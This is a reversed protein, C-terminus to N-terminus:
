LITLKSEDIPPNMVKIKELVSPNSAILPAVESPSSPHIFTGWKKIFRELEIADNKRRMEDKPQNEAKWWGPMRSSVCSFHYVIAEWAQKLEIGKLCFRLAIDSDERSKKFSTDYDIWTEKYFSFPAFFYDTIKTTNKNSEAFKLFDEYRFENPELGFDRVYTISNDLQSHLPPECRTSSLIQNPRLHSLVKKDYDLCIIQDSQLYSVIETKAHHFMWNSNGAYGIPSGNNKVITLNPFLPKMEILMETTGENDSDVFILIDHLNVDVGNLLSEMLLAIYEKENRSTNICFTIKSNLDSM